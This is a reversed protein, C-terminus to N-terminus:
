QEQIYLNKDMVGYDTIDHVDTNTALRGDGSMQPSFKYGGYNHETTIEINPHLDSLNCKM